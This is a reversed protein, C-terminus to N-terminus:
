PVAAGQKQGIRVPRSASIVAGQNRGRAIVFRLGSAPGSTRRAVAVLRAAEDGSRALAFGTPGWSSQGVGAAGCSELTALAAAVRQSAFRGGQVPAFYDGIRRQLESIGSGFADIDGNAVGPLIKMLTLRCLDAAERSPFPPLTAFAAIEATGHVGEATEDIALILRWSPPFALRSLVPPPGAEPGRGGDVILGGSIFAALGVGSRNGRDLAAAAMVPDFAAGNLHALAAAASLALQTGSGFGAHCPISSRLDFRGIAAVGLHNAAEEVYRGLRHGDRGTIELRAAPMAVLDLHPEDLAVGISGFRRGLSGNIDLFGFHLRAPALIRWGGIGIDAGCPM